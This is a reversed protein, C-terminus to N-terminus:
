DVISVLESQESKKAKSRGQLLGRHAQLDGLLAEDLAFSPLLSAV